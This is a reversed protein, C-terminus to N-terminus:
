PKKAPAAANQAQVVLKDPAAADLLPKADWSKLEFYWPRDSAKLVHIDGTKAKALTWTVAKDKTDAITLRLRPPDQEWSAQPQTGLVSDVRLNAIAQVLDDAKVQDVHQDAGLGDASWEATTGADKAPDKKDAGGDDNGKTEGGAGAPPTRHLTITPKGAEAVEVRAIKAADLQLVARDLWDSADTPLDYTALDVSYVATDKATRANAKHGGPASGLYLTALVKDGQRCVIRREYDHEGVKFRDLAQATTAIPLGRRAAVVQKLLGDIKKGDAPADFKAPILWAGDRKALDVGAADTSKAGASRPAVPGDIAIRDVGKLDVAILPADSRAPALRDTRLMLGAALLVQVGLVGALIYIWRQM